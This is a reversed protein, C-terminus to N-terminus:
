VQSPSSREGGSDHVAGGGPLRESASIRSSGSAGPPRNTSQSAQPMSGSVPPSASPSAAGSSPRVVEARDAIAARARGAPPVAVAEPEVGKALPEPERRAGADGFQLLRQPVVHKPHRLEDTGVFASGAARRHAARYGKGLPGLPPGCGISTDNPSPESAPQKKLPPAARSCTRQSWTRFSLPWRGWRASPGCGGPRRSPQGDELFIWTRHLAVDREATEEMGVLQM